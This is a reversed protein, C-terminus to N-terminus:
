VSNYAPIEERRKRYLRATNANNKANCELCRSLTTAEVDRKGCAVCREIIRIARMKKM